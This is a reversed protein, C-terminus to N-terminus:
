EGMGYRPKVRDATNLAPWILADFSLSSKGGGMFASSQSEQEKPGQQSFFMYVRVSPVM